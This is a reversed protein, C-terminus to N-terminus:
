DVWRRTALAIVVIVAVAFLTWFLFSGYWATVDRLWTYPVVYASAVLGGLLMVWLSRPSGGM